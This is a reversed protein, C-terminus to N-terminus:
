KKLLIGLQRAIEKTIIGKKVYNEWLTAKEEKTELTDFKKKIVLARDGSAVGKSKLDKDQVTIGLEREKVVDALKKALEPNAEAIKDFIDVAEERPLNSLQDFYTEVSFGKSTGLPLKELVLERIKEGLEPVPRIQVTPEGIKSEGSVLEQKGYTQVGIGFVAPLGMLLGEAGKEQSIDYLDQIVMPIFRNVVETPLDFERGVATEGQLWSSLFSAIPSEKNEFFRLAIERRTLPKYGEGLTITRGTTSSVIEGSILQWALKIYQQFGGLIDHRTNGSKIKGFDASGPDAGVEFGGFKATALVTGLIGTTAFLTKLAEKRAIPSLSIYFYPNLLNMRSAILRPSFFIANLTPAINGAAKPFMLSEKLGFVGRGTAANIFKGIDELEKDTLQKGAIKTKGVIDNFVDVRLKNLFGTYARNSGRFIKGLVPMREPLSSMITEERSALGGGLDTIPLKARRMSEYTPMAKISEVFGQYAKESFAYKFMGGFSQIFRVPRGIMFIGQRFPASLDVSAMITKPINLVRGITEWIKVSLPRRALIENILEEPFIERLLEIEGRTPVIGEFLNALGGKASIKEFPLLKSQQIIDFLSDVEEQPFFKRVAEFQAKPLPGKLQALQAFFGREGPVKEGVAAVAGARKSREASYLAEQGARVPVAEKIIQILKQVTSKTEPVQEAIKAEATIAKAEIGAPIGRRAEQALPELEPAIRAAKTTTQLEVARNFVASAAKDDVAKVTADALTRALDDALGAKKWFLLADGVNNVAKLEAFMKTKGGGWPTMDMGAIGAIIGVSFNASQKDLIDGFLSAIFRERSNLGPTEALAQFEKSKEKAKNELSLAREGAPRLQGARTEGTIETVESSALDGFLRNALEETFFRFTQSKGEIQSIKKLAPGVIPALAESGIISAFNRTISQGINKAQEGLAQPIFTKKAAREAEEAEKQLRESRPSFKQGIGIEATKLPALQPFVVSPTSPTGM